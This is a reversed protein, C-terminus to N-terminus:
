YLIAYMIFILISVLIINVCRYIARSITEAMSIDKYIAPRRLISISLTIPIFYLYEINPITVDYMNLMPLAVYNYVTFYIFSNLAMLTPIMLVSLLLERLINEKNNM